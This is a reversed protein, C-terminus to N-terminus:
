GVTAYYDRGQGLSAAGSAQGYLSWIQGGLPCMMLNAELGVALQLAERRGQRGRGLESSLDPRITM